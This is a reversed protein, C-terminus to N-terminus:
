EVKKQQVKGTIIIGIFVGIATLFVSIGSWDIKIHSISNNIIYFLIGLGLLFSLICIILLSLRLSSFEGNKDQLFKIKM